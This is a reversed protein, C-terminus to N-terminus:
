ATPTSAAVPAPAPEIHTVTSLSYHQGNVTVSVGNTPDSDVASVIGTVPNGSTDTVTVNRGIYGNAALLSQDNRLKSIDSAMASSQSLSTFQAMQAIFATDDMPKMPDQTQFQTALLKLFDDQGLTKKPAVVTASNAAIGAYSVAPASTSSSVTM